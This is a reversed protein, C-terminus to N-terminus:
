NQTRSDDLQVNTNKYFIMEIKELFHHVSGQRQTKKKTLIVSFRRIIEMELFHSASGRQFSDWVSHQNM